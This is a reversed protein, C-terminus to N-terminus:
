EELRTKEEGDIVSFSGEQHGEESKDFDASHFSLARRASNLVSFTQIDNSLVDDLDTRYPTAVNQDFRGFQRPVFSCPLATTTANSTDLVYMFHMFRLIHM